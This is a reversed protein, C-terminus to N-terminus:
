VLVEVLINLKNWAADSLIIHHTANGLITGSFSISFRAFSRTQRLHTFFDLDLDSGQPFSIHFELSASVHSLISTPCSTQNLFIKNNPGTWLELLIIIFHFLKENSIGDKSYFLQIDNSFWEM